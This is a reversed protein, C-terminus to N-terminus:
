RLHLILANEVQDYKVIISAKGEGGKGIEGDNKQRLWQVM